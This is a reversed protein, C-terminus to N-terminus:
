YGGIILGVVWDFIAWGDSPFLKSAGVKPHSMKTEHDSKLEDTAIASAILVILSVIAIKSFRM